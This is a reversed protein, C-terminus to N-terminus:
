NNPPEKSADFTGVWDDLRQKDLQLISDAHSISLNTSLAAYGRSIGVPQNMVEYGKASRLAM